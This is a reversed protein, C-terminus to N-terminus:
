SWNQPSGADGGTGVESRYQLLAQLIFEPPIKLRQALLETSSVACALTAHQPSRYSFIYWRLNDQLWLEVFKHAGSHLRARHHIRSADKLIGSPCPHHLSCRRSSMQRCILPLAASLRHLHRYVHTIVGCDGSPSEIIKRRRSEAVHAVTCDVPLKRVGLLCDDQAPIRMLRQLSSCRVLAPSATLKAIDIQESQRM